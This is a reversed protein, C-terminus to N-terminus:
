SGKYRHWMSERKEKALEGVLKQLDQRICRQM